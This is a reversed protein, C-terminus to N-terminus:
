TRITGANPLDIRGGIPAHTDKGNMNGPVSAVSTFTNGILPEFRCTAMGKGNNKHLVASFIFKDLAFVTLEHVFGPLGGYYV